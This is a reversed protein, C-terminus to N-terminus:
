IEPSLCLSGTINIASFEAPLDSTTAGATGHSSWAPLQAGKMGTSDAECLRAPFWRGSFTTSFAVLRSIVDLPVVADCCHIVTM